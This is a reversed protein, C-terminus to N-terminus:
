RGERFSVYCRFMPPQFISKRTPDAMKLSSSNTESVTFKHFIFGFENMKAFRKSTAWFLATKPSNQKRLRSATSTLNSFIRANHTTWWHLLPLKDLTNMNISHKKKKVTAFVVHWPSCNTSRCHSLNVFSYSIYVHIFMRKNVLTTIYPVKNRNSLLCCTRYTWKKNDGKIISSNIKKALSIPFDVVCVCVSVGM